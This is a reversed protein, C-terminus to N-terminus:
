DGSAVMSLRQTDHAVMGRVGESSGADRVVQLVLSRFFKPLRVASRGACGHRVIVTTLLRKDFIHPLNSVLALLNEVAAAV